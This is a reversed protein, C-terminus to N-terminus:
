CAPRRRVVAASPWAPRDDTPAAAAQPRPPQRRSPREALGLWLLVSMLDLDFRRLVTHAAKAVACMGLALLAITTLVM